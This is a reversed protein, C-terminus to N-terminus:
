VPQWVHTTEKFPMLTLTTRRRLKRQSLPRWKWSVPLPLTYLRSPLFFLQFDSLGCKCEKIWIVWNGIKEEGTACILYSGHAHLCSFLVHIVINESWNWAKNMHQFLDSIFRICANADSMYASLDSIGWDTRATPWQFLLPSSHHWSLHVCVLTAAIM